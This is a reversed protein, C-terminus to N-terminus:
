YGYKARIWMRLWVIGFGAVTGILARYERNRLYQAWSFGAGAGAAAAVAPDPVRPFFLAVRAAYEDFAAGFRVRLDQEENRMVAYYFVGFYIGVLAGAIWSHAAVVFGAALIASGLYLPNRTSAYPGTTALAKDKRLHGAAIGRVLLGFAAVIAGYLIAHRMPRALVWYLAGVPYGVRVRWRMWFTRQSM